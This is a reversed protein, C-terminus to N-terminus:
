RVGAVSIENQKPAANFAARYNRLWQELVVLSFLIKHNDEHGARHQALSREVVEPVLFDYILSSKDLLITDMHSSLSKRFWDDVVNAAFGRKKRQVIEAPLFRRCVRRHLWKSTGNRIKFSASLREVYRVVDLDLFPVRVELGHVMSLKDAYVLLEDPLTSRMEVVQLGGLEDTNSMLTQLDQWCDLIQDSAGLPLVDRQFLSDIHAGSVISLVKQYREMRGPVALSYLGRRIWEQRPIKTLVSTLPGRCWAPLSRWYSGYHVGLHRRYGAFLEDPGQGMFVVKVDQRARQCVHYMPVMSSAAIPEELSALTTPLSTEFRSREIELSINSAGLTKATRAADSLEDDQYSNGYGVTYTNGSHGNKQMLALLLASDMGGSLLLGLPVDSVLQRSVAKSYLDLLEEEAQAASPMVAFPSPKFSWWPELIPAQKWGVILRTGPALKRIGKVVTFPAPTFRYRLFLSVAVPDVPPLEWDRVLLPRIESAFTVRNSEQRYYLPKIGMPDRALMLQRRRVDWVALGFMGNLHNLVDEGWQKYGHVIVETDSRTRFVHGHAELESRLEKFNYIEGNFVVWVCGDEDTMPQHGGALDIISLRRFGLGLPGAIQYGEDDPGRHAMRDMMAKVSRVDVPEGERYNFQGCIGCM